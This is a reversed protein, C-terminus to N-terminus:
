SNGGAQSRTAAEPDGDPTRRLWSGLGWARPQHGRVAIHLDVGVSAAAKRNLGGATNGDCPRSDAHVSDGSPLRDLACRWKVTLTTLGCGYSTRSRDPNVAFPPPRALGLRRAVARADRRNHVGRKGVIYAVHYEATRTGIFLRDAIEPNAYRECLLALVERERTTLDAGPTSSLRRPAQPPPASTASCTALAPIRLPSLSSLTVVSRM